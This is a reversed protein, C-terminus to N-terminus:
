KTQLDPIVVHAGDVLTEFKIIVKNKTSDCVYGSGSLLDMSSVLPLERLYVKDFVTKPCNAVHNLVLQITRSPVVSPIYPNIRAPPSPRPTETTATAMFTFGNSDYTYMLDTSIDRWRRITTMEKSNKVPSIMAMVTSDDTNEYDNVNGVVANGYLVLLAGKRHFAPFESLPMSINVTSGGQYVKSSDFWYIWSNGEPFTVVRTLSDEVMPAVFIDTWLMYDYGHPLFVSPDIPNIVSGGNALATTGANLLYAKLQFHIDVFNKYIAIVQTPNPFKWPLHNGGGGNEMLPVFAGMQAWRLFLNPQRPNQPTRYGGIDSGYNVYNQYASEFMNDLANKLGDFTDDQDGVWGSLVVDRPSFNWYIIEDFSDVPRSMILADPNTKRTYYLFDQYYANAYERESIVGAYGIPIIL